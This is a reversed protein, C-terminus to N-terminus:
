KKDTTEKNIGLKNKRAYDDAILLQERFLEYEKDSVLRQIQSPKLFSSSEKWDAMVGGPWIGNRVLHLNLSNTGEVVWVYKYMSENEEPDSTNLQNVVIVTANTNQNFWDAIVQASGDSRPARAWGSAVLSYMQKTEKHEGFIGDWKISNAPIVISEERCAVLVLSLAM